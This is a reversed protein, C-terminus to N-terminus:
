KPCLTKRLAANLAAGQEDTLPRSGSGFRQAAAWDAKGGGRRLSACQNRGSDIAKEEDEVIRPDVAKIAALYADRDAGTPEPPIGAAKELAAWDTTKTPTPTPAAKAPATGDTTCATLAVLAAATALLAAPRRM